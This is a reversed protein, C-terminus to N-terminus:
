QIVTPRIFITLEKNSRQKEKYGFLWSIVPIRSLFPTGSNTKSRTIQKLGGLVVMEKNKMRIISKFEKKTAGPPAEGAQPKFDSHSVTIELTIQDDGSVIPKIEIALDASLEKYQVTTVQTPSQTGFLNTQPVAYFQTEGVSLKAEHGNLAALKPTTHIKVHGNKELASLDAYFGAGVNGLNFFGLSNISTIIQNLTSSNLVASVGTRSMGGSTSVPDASKGIKVGTQITYSKDVDVIMIEILIMPVVKDINKLFNKIEEIELTSGSLILSNLEEYNKIDVNKKIESPIIDIVDEITRHQFQYVETHRFKEKNRDGIIYVSDIKKFTFDSTNLINSITQDFTLEKTKLSINGKPEDFIFYSIESTNCVEKILDALPVDTAEVSLLANFVEIEIDSENGRKRNNNRKNFSKNRNSGRKKVFKNNKNFVEESSKIGYFNNAKKQLENSGTLRLLVEKISQNVITMNVTNNRLKSDLDINVNTLVSIKRVVESLTDSVLDGSITSDNRNFSLNIKKKSKKQVPVKPEVYKKFSIIKGTWYITLSHEKCLLLFIEKVTANAFNYSPTANIKPDVSVNLDNEKAIARIIEQLTYNNVSLNVTKNLGEQDQSAKNLKSELIDFRSQGITTLCIFFFFISFINKIRIQM